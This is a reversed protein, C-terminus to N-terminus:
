EFGAAGVVVVDLTDEQTYLGDIVNLLTSGGDDNAIFLWRSKNDAVLAFADGTGEFISETHLVEGSEADFTLLESTTNGWARFGFLDQGPSTEIDLVTDQGQLNSIESIITIEGQYLEALATSVSANNTAYYGALFFHSGDDSSVFAFSEAQFISNSAKTNINTCLLSDPTIQVIEYEKSLGWLIGKPDSTMATLYDLDSALPCNLYGLETLSHTELNYQWLHNSFLRLELLYFFRLKDIAEEPTTVSVSSDIDEPAFSDDVSSKSLGLCAFLMWLM